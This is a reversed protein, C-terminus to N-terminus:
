NQKDPFPEQDPIARPQPPPPPPPPFNVAEVADFPPPMAYTAPPPYPAENLARSYFTAAAAAKPSPPPPMNMVVPTGNPGLIVPQRISNSPAYQQHAFPHLAYGRSRSMSSYYANWRAELDRQEKRAEEEKIEKEKKWEEMTIKYRERDNKEKEIYPRKEEESAARWVEGLLRSVDTNAMEPNKQKIKPREKLAFCLFASMPRKPASPDKRTRKRVQWPGTYSAKEKMFREKDKAAVEEWHQKQDAPLNKWMEASRKSITHITANPGLMERINARQDTFFCIYSSRFRKPAQPAKKLQHAGSNRSRKKM